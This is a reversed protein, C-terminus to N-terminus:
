RVVLVGFVGGFEDRVAVLGPPAEWPGGDIRLNTQYTGPPIVLTTTWWGDATAVLSVPKWSTFDANVEVSQVGPAHVRLTWRGGGAPEMEFASVTRSVEPERTAPVARDSRADPRARPTAFRIGVSAFRGGPFGEALDVPYTGASGVVAAYNTLRLLVSASAWSRGTGGAAVFRSGSRVGGSFGVEVRDGEWRAAGQSDAFRITDDVTEPSWSALLTWGSVRGWVGADAQRVPRWARGDNAGGIGAGVYAGAVDTMYHARTLGTWRGTTPDGSRTAGGGSGSLEGVFGHLPRSYLSADMSGDVSWASNALSSYSGIASITARDWRAHFAPTLSMVSTTVSDAYRISAGGVDVSATTRQAAVDSAITATALALFAVRRM